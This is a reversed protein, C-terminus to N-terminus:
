YGRDLVKVNKIYTKGLMKVVKYEVKFTKNKYPFFGITTDFKIDGDRESYAHVEYLTQGSFETRSAKGFKSIHYVETFWGEQVIKIDDVIINTTVKTRSVFFINFVVILVLLVIAPVKFHRIYKLFKNNRKKIQLAKRRAAVRRKHDKKSKARTM